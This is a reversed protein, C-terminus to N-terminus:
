VPVSMPSYPWGPEFPRVKSAFPRRVILSCPFRRTVLSSFFPCSVIRASLYWLLRRLLGFSKTYRESPVSYKVSGGNPRGFNKSSGRFSSGKLPTKESCFPFSRRTVVSRLPGFPMAKEGSSFYRYTVFQSSFFFTIM